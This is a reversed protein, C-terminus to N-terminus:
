NEREDVGYLKLIRLAEANSEDSKEYEKRLELLHLMMTLLRCAAQGHQVLTMSTHDTNSLLATIREELMNLGQDTCQLSDQQRKRENRSFKKM